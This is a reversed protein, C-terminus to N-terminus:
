GRAAMCVVGCDCSEAIDRMHEEVEWEMGIVAIVPITPDYKGEGSTAFALGYGAVMRHEQGKGM